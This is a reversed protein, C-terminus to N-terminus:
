IECLGMVSFKLGRKLGQTFGFSLSRFTYICLKASVGTECAILRVHPSRVLNDGLMNDVGISMSMEKGINCNSLSHLSFSNINM